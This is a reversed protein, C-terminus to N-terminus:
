QKRLLQQIEALSKGKTEPVVCYIFVIGLLCFSGFLWLCETMGALKVIIPFGLTVLFSAMFCSCTTLAAAVGKAHPPFVESMVLWPLPGLGINFVIIYVVVCVVPLWFINSVDYIKSTKLYFYLGLLFISACSGITSAVLLVKRGLKEVISTTLLTGLVQIVGVTTTSAYPSLGSGTAEFIPGLFALVANIGSFQQLVVLGICVILGQTQELDQTMLKLEGEVQDSNRLKRLAERAGKTNGVSVLYVPSDPVFLSFFILFLMLPVACSFSFLKISLFPGVALPYLLGITLFVTMLCGFKGRNHDQTIEGLYTPLVAFVSGVGLGLVFRAVYYLNVTTAFSLTVFAAVMPFAILLLTRKRGLSDALKGAALPGIGAGLCTLSAIWSEEFATIPKGLPQHESRGQKPDFIGALELRFQLRRRLGLHRRFFLYHHLNIKSFSLVVRCSKVGTFASMYLFASDSPVSKLLTTEHKWNENTKYVVEELEGNVDLNRKDSGTTM